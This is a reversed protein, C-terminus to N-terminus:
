QLVIKSYLVGESTFVNVLYLGKPLNTTNIKTKNDVISQSYVLQGAQNYLMIESDNAILYQNIELTFEDKTPNPFLHISPKNSEYIGLPYDTGAYIKVNDLYINNGTKNVSEFVLSITKGKYADLNVLFPKWHESESPIFGWVTSNSYSLSEGYLVLLTDDIPSVCNERVILRLSDQLTLTNARLIYAIDFELRIADTSNPIEFMPSQLEDRQNANPSYGFCKIVATREGWEKNIVTEIEWTKDGDPNDVIWNGNNFGHEFGDYYPLSLTPRINFRSYRTNNILDYTETQTTLQASIVLENSGQESSTIADLEITISSNPNLTGTWNYTSNESSNLAYNVQFSQIVETGFNSFTVSPTITSNCFVENTSPSNIATIALDYDVQNPNVPTNNEALYNFAAYADILGMGYENDEGPEGMDIATLYLAWLLEEGSLYPFAEKLLLLVGSVHPSAMSTGSITSYGNQGWASRINQGPAVVEPHIALSGEGPCQKPGRSSFSSLPHPFAFNADISGVSFTNVESTNIRQPASITTNSPGQNGGSFVNAIGAAEIANMLDVVIGDCQEDDAGDYWRWSNNIVDPIDSITTIDGDPNLAWEFSAMMDALGPLSAVTPGVLDNAMWYAKIAIGLTDNFEEVLGGVTGLVHSGHSSRTGNPESNYFGDWAQSMPAFNAMFRETYAPHTPWVGTDYIFVKRGRGSYGMEWLPRVNCALVGPEVGDISKETNVAEIKVDEHLLFRNNEYAITKIETVKKLEHILSPTAECFIVNVIWFQRINKVRNTNESLFSLLNEQQKNATTQLRQLVLPVREQLPTSASILENKLQFCDVVDNLEIRISIFEDNSSSEIRESLSPHIYIQSFITFLNGLFLCAFLYKM